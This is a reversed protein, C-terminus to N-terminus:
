IYKLYKLFVVPSCEIFNGCKKKMFAWLPEPELKLLHQFSPIFRTNLFVSVDTYVNAYM